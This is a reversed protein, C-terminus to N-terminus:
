DNQQTVPSYFVRGPYKKIMMVCWESLWRVGSFINEKLGLVVGSENLPLVIPKAAPLNTTIPKQAVAVVQDNSGGSLDSQSNKNDSVSKETSTEVKEIYNEVERIAIAEPTDIPRELEKGIPPM